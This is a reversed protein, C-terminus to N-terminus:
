EVDVNEKNLPSRSILKLDRGTWEYFFSGEEQENIAGNIVLLRSDQRFDLRPQDNGIAGTVLRISDPTHAIGTARDVIAFSRCDTGCGWIVLRYHGAFNAGLKGEESIVTRYRKAQATTLTIKSALKTNQKLRKAPYDEFRLSQTHHEAAEIKLTNFTLCAIIILTKILM